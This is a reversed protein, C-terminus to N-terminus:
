VQYTLPNPHAGRDRVHDRYEGGSAVGPMDLMRSASGGKTLLDAGLRCGTIGMPETVTPTVTGALRRPLWWNPLRPEAM